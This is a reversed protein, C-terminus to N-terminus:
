PLCQNVQHSYPSQINSKIMCLLYILLSVELFVLVRTETKDVCTNSVRHQSLSLQFMDELMPQSSCFCAFYNLM